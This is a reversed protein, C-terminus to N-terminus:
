EVIAQSRKANNIGTLKTLISKIISTKYETVTALVYSFIYSFILCLLFLSFSISTPYMKYGVNVFLQVITLFLMIFPLHIVYLTFSFSAMIESPRDLIGKKADENFCSLFTSFALATILDNEFSTTSLFGISSNVLCMIFLTGTIYKLWGRQMQFFIPVLGVLWIIFYKLILIPLFSSIAIILVIYFAILITIRKKLISTLTLLIIPFLIYYWFEYNLSWLPVNSGFPPLTINQLMLLSNLFHSLNLREIVSFNLASISLGNNYLGNTDLKAGSYDFIWTILLAPFLVTYIRSIRNILYIKMDFRGNKKQSIVSRGILYGSLVFFIVVAEHGLSTFLYFVKTFISPQTLYKFDQFLFSRIHSVVVFLAAIWRILHM